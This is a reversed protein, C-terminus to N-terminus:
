KLYETLITQYQGEKRLKQLSQNFSATLDANKCTLPHSLPQFIPHYTVAQMREARMGLKKRNFEFIHKDMLVISTEEQFLMNVLSTASHQEPRMKKTHRQKVLSQYTHGLENTAGFFASFDKDSLDNIEKLIISNKTLSIAVFPHRVLPDSYFANLGKFPTLSTACDIDGNDLADPIYEYNLYYPLIEYGLDKFAARIIELEAGTDHLRNYYPEEPEPIAITVEKALLVHSFVFALLIFIFRTM